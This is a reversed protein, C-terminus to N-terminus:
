RPRAHRDDRRDVARHRAARHTRDRARQWDSGADLVVSATPWRRSLRRRGHAAAVGPMKLTSPDLAALQTSPRSCTRSAVAPTPSRDVAHPRCPARAHTRAAATSVQQGLVVRLALRRSRRRHASDALGPEERHAPAAQPRSEASRRGSRSRRRPRAPSPVARDGDAPRARRRARPPVDVYDPTPRLEVISHGNPLRMRAGTRATATSRSAPSAPRWSTASCDKPRSRSASRSASRRARGAHGAHRAQAGPRAAAHAIRRVRAARHRQVPPHELVRRRVRDTRVAARDDRDAAAGDARTPGTRGGASRRRSRGHPTTRTPAHLLRRARALGNVGERDVVGDAILRM